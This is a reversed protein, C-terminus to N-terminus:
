GMWLRSVLSYETLQHTFHNRCLNSSDRGQTRRGALGQEPAEQRLLCGPPLRLLPPDREGRV